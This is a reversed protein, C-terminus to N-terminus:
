TLGETTSIPSIHPRTCRHRQVDGESLHYSWETCVQEDPVFVLHHNEDMQSSGELNDFWEILHVIHHFQTGWSVAVLNIM